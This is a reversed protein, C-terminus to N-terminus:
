LSFPDMIVLHGDDRSRLNEIYSLDLTAQYGHFEHVLQETAALLGRVQDAGLESPLRRNQQYALIARPSRRAADMLDELYELIDEESSVELLYETEYIFYTEGDITFKGTNYIKPYYPNGQNRVFYDVYKIVVQERRQDGIGLIKVVTSRPSIFALQDRGEGIHRYGRSTFYDQIRQSVTLEDASNIEQLNYFEFLTM